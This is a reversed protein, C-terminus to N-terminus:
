KLEGRKLKKYYNKFYDPHESRYKKNYEKRKEPNNENWKIAYERREKYNNKAHERNYKKLEEKHDQYYKKRYEIVEKGYKELFAQNYIKKKQKRIVEIEREYKEIQQEVEFDNKKYHEIFELLSLGNYEIECSKLKRKECRKLFKYMESYKDNDNLSYIKDILGEKRKM